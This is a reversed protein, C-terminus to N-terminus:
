PDVHNRWQGHIAPVHGDAGPAGQGTRPDRLAHAPNQSGAAPNPAQLLAGGVPDLKQFTPDKTFSTDSGRVVEIWDKSVLLPMGPLTWYSM